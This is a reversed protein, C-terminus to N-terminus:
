LITFQGIHAQIFKMTICKQIQKLIINKKIERLFGISEGGCFQYNSLFRKEYNSKSLLFFKKFLNNQSIFIITFLFVIILNIKKEKSM